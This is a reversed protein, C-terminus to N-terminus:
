GVLERILKGGNAIKMPRGNKSQFTTELSIGLGRCVTAMLDEASYPESLVRRGEADTEGIALGGQIGAGGLVVSWSRAWHDRGANGNIRPTRGFEGMVVVLVQDLMGRNSLDEILSAVAMDVKPLHNEMTGQHNWHSDWGGFHCTVFTTGAEVLRRALLVSQGWSNRGYRDRLRPDELGIDFATRAREGTVMEYAQEDFRDMADIMGSQDAQRRLRDFQSQLTRRDNLRNISLN